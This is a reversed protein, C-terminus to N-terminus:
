LRTVFGDGSEGNRTRPFNELMVVQADKKASSRHQNQHHYQPHVFTDNEREIADSRKRSIRKWVYYTAGATLLLGAVAIPIFPHRKILGMLTSEVEVEQYPSATSTVGSPDVSVAWIRYTGPLLRMAGEFIGFGNGDLTIEENSPTSEGRSISINVKANPSAQVEGSLSDGEKWKESALKITPAPTEEVTFEITAEKFNGAADIARIVYRHAGPSQVLQSREHSGDDVWSVPVGDDLIFEYRDIGSHTDTASVAIRINQDKDSSRPLLEVRVDDPPTRDVRIARHATDESGDSRERTLHFYWEGDDLDNISREKMPANFSVTGAGTARKNLGTRIRTVDEPMEWTFTASPLNYWKAPDPHTPSTLWDSGTAEGLVEGTTIADSEGGMSEVDLISSSPITLSHPEAVYLGNGLTAVLNGGTGDGAHLAAGSDFTLTFEGSRDPRVKLTLVKGREVPTATSMFGGFSIEGVATNISPQTTWSSLISGETSVDVITVAVPDFLIKGEVANIPEDISTVMVSFEHVEGTKYTGTIPSIFVGANGVAYVICPLVASVAVLSARFITSASTRKTTTIM